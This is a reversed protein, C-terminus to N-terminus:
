SPPGPSLGTPGPGIGAGPDWVCLCERAFLEPGLEDFLAQMSEETVWRGLGPM